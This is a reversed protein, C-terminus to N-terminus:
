SPQIPVPIIAPGLLISPGGPVEGENVLYRAYLLLWHRYEHSSQLTLAAAVQNELYALTTEQQVVHPVSFLRAAQRGSSCFCTMLCHTSRSAPPQWQAGWPLVSFGAPPYIDNWVPGGTGIDWSHVEQISQYGLYVRSQM